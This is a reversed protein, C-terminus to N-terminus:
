RVNYCTLDCHFILGRMIRETIGTAAPSPLVPVIDHSSVLVKDEIDPFVFRAGHRHLFSVKVESGSKRKIQGIYFVHCKKSMRLKFKVLYFIEVQANKIHFPEFDEGLEECHLSEDSPSDSLAALGSYLEM